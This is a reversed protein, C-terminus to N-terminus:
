LPLQSDENSIVLRAVVADLLETVETGSLTAQLTPNVFISTYRLPDEATAPKTVDFAYIPGFTSAVSEQTELNTRTLTLTVKLGEFANLSTFPEVVPTSCEVSEESNDSGCLELAQQTVFEEYSAPLPSDPDSKYEMVQVLPVFEKREQSGVLVAGTEFERVDFIRPYDFWFAKSKFTSTDTSPPPNVNSILYWGGGILILAAVVAGIILINRQNTQMRRM